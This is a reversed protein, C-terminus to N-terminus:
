GGSSSSSSSSSSTGGGSGSSSSSSSGGSSSSSSSSSSSGSGGSSSSSSSSSDGSGSSSSSTSGGSSSSSSSSSDNGGSSSSGSSTGGGSSSSSSSSSSTSGGSSSSSSSSSSGSSLNSRLYWNDETDASAGGRFLFYEYPGAAVINGLSFARPTSSGNIVQNVLIGDGSTLAGPGSTNNIFLTTTGRENGTTRLYDSPSGDTGLFTDLAMRGNQGIYNGTLSLIDNPSANGTMDILGANRLRASNGAIAPQINHSGQNAFLTASRDISLSGTGSGSDGLILNGNMTLESGSLLRIQEWNTLRDPRGGITNEWDLQDSGLGGNIPYGMLNADTLGILRAYDDGDQMDLNRIQGGSWTLQDDGSGAMYTPLEGDLVTAQDNGEGQQMSNVFGGEMLFTDTGAGQDVQTNIRAGTRNIVEDNGADLSFPSGQITGYNDVLTDTTGTVQIGSNITAPAENLIQMSGNGAAKIGQNLTGENVVSNDGGGSFTFFQNISGNARNIVNHDGDGSMELGQNIAGANDFNLLGINLLSVSQLIGENNITLTDIDAANIPGNLSAGPLIDITLDSLNRATFGPDSGSCTVTDGSSPRAPQCDAYVRSPLNITALLLILLPLSVRKARKGYAQQTFDM